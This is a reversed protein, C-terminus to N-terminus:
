KAREKRISQALWIALAIGLLQIFAVGIGVGILIVANSEIREKLKILCGDKKTLFLVFYKKFNLLFTKLNRKRIETNSIYVQFYKHQFLPSANKCDKTAFDIIDPKCCSPRITKNKSYDSWDSPGNVGCCDLKRQVNDWAMIDDPSSRVISRELSDKLMMQLDSKFVCAAIGVSLEIVFIIALM